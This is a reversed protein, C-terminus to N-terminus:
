SRGGILILYDGINEMTHNYRGDPAIGLTQIKEWGIPHPGFFLMRM